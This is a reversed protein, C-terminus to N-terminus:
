RALEPLFYSLELALLHGIGIHILVEIRTTMIIKYIGVLSALQATSIGKAM